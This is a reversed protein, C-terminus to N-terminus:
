AALEAVRRIRSVLGSVRDYLRDDATWFECGRLEALALYTADYVTPFGFLAALEWARERQGPLALVTVPMDLMQRFAGDAEERTLEPASAPRRVLVAKRLLISDVEAFFFSPAVMFVQDKHWQLLLRIAETSFAEDTVWKVALSADVCVESVM